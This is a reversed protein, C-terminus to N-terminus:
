KKPTFIMRVARGEEGWHPINTMQLVLEGSPRQSLVTRWGWEPGEGAGYSYHFAFLGGADPLLACEVLKTQHWSDTWTIDNDRLSYVGEQPKGEYSWTYRVTSADITMSCEYRHADNGLPDLWLEGTGSWETGALKSLDARSM